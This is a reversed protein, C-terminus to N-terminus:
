KRSFGFGNAIAHVAPNFSLRGLIGQKYPLFTKKKLDESVARNITYHLEHASIPGKGKRKSSYVSNGPDNHITRFSSSKVEEHKKFLSAYKKLPDAKDTARGESASRFLFFDKLKWKKPGKLTTTDSLTSVSSTLNPKQKSNQQDNKQQHRQQYKFEEEWPYESVRMPSLSRTARHRSRSTSLSSVSRERGRIAGEEKSIESSKQVERPKIIGGDFLVDATLSGADMEQSVDFAFDDEFLNNCESPMDSSVSNRMLDSRMSHNTLFEDFEAYFQSVHRPSTPASFYYDGIRAPSSPATFGPSSIANSFEFDMMTQSPLIVETEGM